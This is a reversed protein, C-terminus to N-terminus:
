YRGRLTNKYSIVREPSISIKHRMDLGGLQKMKEVVLVKYGKEALIRVSIAGSLGSFAVLIEYLNKM